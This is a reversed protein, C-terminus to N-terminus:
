LGSSKDTPLKCYHCNEEQPYEQEKLMEAQQKFKKPDVVCLISSSYDVIEYGSGTTKVLAELASRWPVEKLYLNVKGQIDESYVLNVQATTALAYIVKRIDTDQFELSILPVYRVKWLINSLPVVECQAQEAILHLADLWPIDTLTVTIKTSIQPDLIINARSQKRIFDIVESISKDRVELTINSKNPKEQATLLPSQILIFIFILPFLRLM